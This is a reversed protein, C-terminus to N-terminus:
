AAPPAPALVTWTRGGDTTRLLGANGIAWGLTSSAFSLVSVHAFPGSPTLSAWQAGGDTTRYLSAGADTDAAIWWHSPDLVSTVDPAAQVFTTPSWTSGGDQTVYVLSLVGGGAAQSGVAVPLVGVQASFFTPPLTGAVYFWPYQALAAPLALPV